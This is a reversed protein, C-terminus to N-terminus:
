HAHVKKDEDMTIAKPKIQQEARPQAQVAPKPGPWCSAFLEKCDLVAWCWSFLPRTSPPPRSYQGSPVRQVVVLHVTVEGAAFLGEVSDRLDLRGSPVHDLAMDHVSMSGYKNKHHLQLFCRIDFVIEIGAAPVLVTSKNPMLVSFSRPVLSEMTSNHAFSFTM